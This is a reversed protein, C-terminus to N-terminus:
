WKWNGLPKKPCEPDLDSDQLEGSKLVLICILLNEPFGNISKGHYVM